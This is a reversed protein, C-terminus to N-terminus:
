VFGVRQLYGKCLRCPCYPKSKRIKLKFSKLDCIKITEPVLSWMKPARYSVNETYYRVSSPNRIQLVNPKRLDYTFTENIKFINNM